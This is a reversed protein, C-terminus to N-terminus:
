EKIYAATFIRGSNIGLRRASFYDASNNYTCINSMLINEKRIGCSELQLQNCLPLDIHWKERRWSIADMPFAEARFQEYVEDGVEFADASIGPGVIAKIDSPRCSFSQQLHAITKCVIRKATGRWGAHIAALAKTEPCYLLVPICDATSVGICIGRVDTILADVGELIMQQTQTSLAFFDSMILRVETGHVQHPMVIHDADIGIEQSLLSLNKQIAADTDGCYPNINMEGYAEQSYGGHRTTSFAVLRSDIPYYNLITKM